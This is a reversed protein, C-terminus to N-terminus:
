SNKANPTDIIELNGDEDIIQETYRDGTYSIPNIIWPLARSLLEELEEVRAALLPADAILRANADGNVVPAIWWGNKSRIAARKEPGGGESYWTGWPGPTHGDYKGMM